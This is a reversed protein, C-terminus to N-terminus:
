PCWYQAEYKECMDDLTQITLKSEGSIVDNRRLNLEDRESTGEEPPKWGCRRYIDLDIGDAIKLRPIKQEKMVKLTSQTKKSGVADAIIQIYPNPNLVFKEFPITIINASSGEKYDKMAKENRSIAKSMFTIAKEIPGGKLFKDEWGLTYFPVENDNYLHHITFNRVDQNLREFNLAQQRLMYLPHRVVEIFTCKEGLADFIPQAYSLLNHSAINLIPKEKSIKSPIVEDGKAFLREFYVAPNHYNYVSSLDSKRFNVDRSMMTNYLKIDSQLRVMTVADEHSIKKLHRLQCIHEIDQTYSLIEVRKLSSIIQSVLTKGCGPLGDVFVTNKIFSCKRSSKLSM